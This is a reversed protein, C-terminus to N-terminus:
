LFKGFPRGPSWRKRLRWFRRRYRKRYRASGTHHFTAVLLDRIKLRYFNTGM